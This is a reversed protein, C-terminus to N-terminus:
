VLGGASFTTGLNRRSTVSSIDQRDEEISHIEEIYNIEYFEVITSKFFFINFSFCIVDLFLFVFSIKTKLRSYYFKMM